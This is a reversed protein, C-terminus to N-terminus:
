AREANTTYTASAKTSVDIKTFIPTGARERHAMVQM